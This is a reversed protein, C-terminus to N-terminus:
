AHLDQLREHLKLIMEMIEDKNKKNKRICDMDMSHNTGLGHEVLGQYKFIEQEVTALRAKESIEKKTGQVDCIHLVGEHMEITPPHERLEPLYPNIVKELFKDKSSCSTIM